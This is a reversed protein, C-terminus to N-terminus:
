YSTKYRFLALADVEHLFTTMTAGTVAIQVSAAWLAMGEYVPCAVSSTEGLLVALGTRVGAAAMVAVAPDEFRRDM